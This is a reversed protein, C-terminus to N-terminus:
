EDGDIKLAVIVKTGKGEESKIEIIGGHMDIINKTVSLGLGTGERPGKTTFFPNFVKKVNEQSIGVGTDEIEVMVARKSFKSYYESRADIGEGLKDLRALGKGQLSRSLRGKPALYSRISINGGNPMAHVSNLFINIFVQEMKGKDALVQPLDERAEKIVKINKLKLKHEVLRLSNELVSNIDQPHLEIKTARSFDVLASVISDARKVNSKIMELTRIINKESAVHRTLYNVGQIIIALPNKVEHAVGSALQGVAEFKEAQILQAASEKLQESTKRLEEAAVEEIAEAIKRETIDQLTEMAAVVNGEADRLPAATFFFWLVGEGLFGEAEYAGKIVASKRYKDTYYKKIEEEGADDVVLDAMVPREQSYFISWQKKTGIMENASLGTLNECAKNWRTIIHEKNIVFTAIPSGQVIQLLERNVKQLKDEM